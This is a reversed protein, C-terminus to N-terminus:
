TLRACVMAERELVVTARYTGTVPVCECTGAGRARANIQDPVPIQVLSATKGVTSSM